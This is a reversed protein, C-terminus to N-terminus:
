FAVVEKGLNWRVGGGFYSRTATRDALGSDKSRRQYFLDLYFNRKVEYSMNLRVLNITTAIGQGISNNFDSERTRNPLLINGGFNLSDQDEGTTALMAHLDAVVKPHPQYRLHLILERFNAGLPHALPQSYHSYSATQDRHSYTYPRVSNYEIQIDLHNIAFADIYRAGLQLGYKNGWWGSSSKIEGLKFEDLIFQSYIQFRNLLTWDLNIGILVNDPSGISGEVTRYLIIPNLYQLEFQNQRSFVVTEFLGISFNPKPKFSLYHAAFYKKPLLGDPDTRSRAEILEGFINQYHLKWVRTNLKLYFYDNSFDSLFLSRMGHGIFHRGHGLEINVHRSIPLGVFGKAILFDVGEDFDFISSDFDKFFGARPVANFRRTFERIFAPYRTQSELVSTHFYIKDDIRGRISIGRQNWFLFQDDDSERGMAFRLLPNVKLQLGPKDIEFFHAPTKYFTNLLAHKSAVNRVPMQDTPQADAHTYFVRSSDVYIKEGVPTLDGQIAGQGLWDNNEESVKQLWSETVGTATGSELDIAQVADYFDRRQIPKIATHVGFDTNAKIQNRQLWQYYDSPFYQPVSQAALSSSLLLFSSKLIWCSIKSINKLLLNMM